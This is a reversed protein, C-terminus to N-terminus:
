AVLGAKRADALAVDLALGLKDFLEDIQLDTIILPPCIAVVDRIARVMLGLEVGATQVRMPIGTSADFAKRSTKDQAIEIAGILGVGRVEGVLPHDALSKLRQQFHSAVHQVHGVIDRDHYINLAEVAVAACVPHGAYTVGHAFIGNRRSGAEIGEFVQKSVLTASIPQYSGSLAKAVTMIDPRIGFTQAGFLEGTRGFGCIVEDDILLIGHRHLVAQLRPWYGTPPILVGGSGQLPEAILAGITNAGEREILTELNGIIRDVFQSETEGPLGYHYFSPSDTRLVRDVPLDFDAHNTPLGTLSGSMVTVGHYGRVRAIIKKKEPQGIANFYYWVLKVAQDNAESGSNAFLVKDFGFEATLSILREALEIAPENSRGGFIQYYPLRQLQRTAADVLRQESFVLSASWLGSMAELYRRGQDDEVYIGDGHTIVLPGSKQHQDLNTYPHLVAAIDSAATQTHNKTM